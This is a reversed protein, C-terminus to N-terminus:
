RLQGGRQSEVRGQEHGTPLLSNPRTWVISTRKPDFQGSRNEMQVASSSLLDLLLDKHVRLVQSICPQIFGFLIDEHMRLVQSIRPQM